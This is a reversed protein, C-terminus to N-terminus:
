QASNPARKVMDYIENTFPDTWPFMPRPDAFMRHIHDFKGTIQSLRMYCTLTPGEQHGVYAVGRPAYPEGFIKISEDYRAQCNFEVPVGEEIPYKEGERKIPLPKIM